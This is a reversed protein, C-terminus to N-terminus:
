QLPPIGKIQILSLSFFNTIFASSARGHMVAPLFILHRAITKVVWPKRQNKILVAPPPPQM